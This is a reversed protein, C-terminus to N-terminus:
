MGPFNFIMVAALSGLPQIVVGINPTFVALVLTSLFWLASIIIRQKM